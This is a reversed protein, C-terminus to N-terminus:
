HRCGVSFASFWSGCTLRQSGGVQKDYVQLTLKYFIRLSTTAACVKLGLEWFASALPDRLKLGAQNVSLTGGCLQLQM